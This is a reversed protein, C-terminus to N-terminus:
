HLKYGTENLSIYSLLSLNANWWFIESGWMGFFDQSLFNWKQINLALCNYTKTQSIIRVLGIAWDTPRLIYVSFERGLPLGAGGEVFFLHGIPYPLLIGRITLSWSLLDLFHPIDWENCNIGPGSQGPNTTGIKVSSDTHKWEM